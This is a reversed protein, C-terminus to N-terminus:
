GHFTFYYLYSFVIPAILIPSDFRDLIGGHGPLISSSDKEGADRKFLSEVLDSVQGMIGIIAGIIIGSGVSLPDIVLFAAFACFLISAILGAIAGEWTKNPSVRRFLKHKGHSAGYLYAATDCIWIAAFVLMVLFAGTLNSASIRDPLDRILIMFSLLSIYGIGLISVGANAMPNPVGRFLELILILVIVFPISITILHTVEFYICVNICFLAIMGLIRSPHLGKKQALMYFERLSLVQILTVLLLFLPNGSYILFFILPIGFLAVLVRVMLNKMDM